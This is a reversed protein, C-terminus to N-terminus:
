NRIELKKFAEVLENIGKDGVLRGVFVFVFDTDKIGLSHKLNVLDLANLVVRSFFSTDIGNSSGNGIVKLKNKTTYKNEM